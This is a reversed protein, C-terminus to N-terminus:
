GDSDGTLHEFRKEITEVVKPVQVKMAEIGKRGTSTFNSWWRLAPQNPIGVILIYAVGLKGLKEATDVFPDLSGGTYPKSKPRAVLTSGDDDQVLIEDGSNWVTLCEQCRETDDEAPRVATLFPQKCLAEVRGSLTVICLHARGIGAGELWSWHVHGNM